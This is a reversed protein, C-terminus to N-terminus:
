KLIIGNYSQLARRLLSIANAREAISFYENSIANPFVIGQTNEFVIPNKVIGLKSEISYQMSNLLEFEKEPGLYKKGDTGTTYDRVKAVKIKKGTPSGTKDLEDKQDVHFKFYRTANQNDTVRFIRPATYYQFVRSLYMQGFEQMFADINRTKQRLRTQAADQLAEIASAATVGEPRVGRSVDNSGSIDDFWSKMRDVLQLVFPQLQVGEERRVQNPDDAEVILGPRNFLNDTDVGSTNGVVWIPNGMLTLVDLSFSVLKNFIKQPSELQEVESMGWFERSLIYNTLRIYPFKQDDFPIPGQECLVGNVTVIKRGQPYKLKTVYVSKELGDEGLEKMEEEFTEM